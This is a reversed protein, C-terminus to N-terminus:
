FLSVIPILSLHCTIYAHLLFWHSVEVGFWINVIYLSHSVQKLGQGSVDGQLKNVREMTLTVPMAVVRGLSHRFYQM